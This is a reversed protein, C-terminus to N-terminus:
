CIVSELSIGNKKGEKCKTDPVLTNTMGPPMIFLLPLSTSRISFTFGSILVRMSFHLVTLQCLEYRYALDPHACLMGNGEMM